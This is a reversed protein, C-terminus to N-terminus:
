TSSQGIRDEFDVTDIKTKHLSTTASLFLELDTVGSARGDFLYRTPPSSSGVAYRGTAGGGQLDKGGM